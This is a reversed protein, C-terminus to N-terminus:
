NGVGLNFSGAGDLFIRSVNKLVESLALTQISTWTLMGALINVLFIDAMVAPPLISLLEQREVATGFRKSLAVRLASGDRQLPSQAAQRLGVTAVEPLLGPEGEWIGAMAESVTQLVVRIPMEQPLAHLHRTIDAESEHIFALLVDEKTPFHFYFTGRSVGALKVIDDIRCAQVGDRRFVELAAEFVKRRTEEKQRDRSNNSFEVQEDIVM